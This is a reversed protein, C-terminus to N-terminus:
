AAECSFSGRGHNKGGCSCECKMVLGTANLCRADCEHRSPSSKMEVTRTVKVWGLGEVYGRVKGRGQNDIGRAARVQGREVTGRWEITSGNPLDAFYAFLAM